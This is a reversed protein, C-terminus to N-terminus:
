KTLTYKSEKLVCKLIYYKNLIALAQNKNNKTQLYIIPNGLSSHKHM